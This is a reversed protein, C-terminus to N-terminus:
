LLFVETHMRRCRKKEVITGSNYESQQALCKIGPEAAINSEKSREMNANKDDYIENIEDDM